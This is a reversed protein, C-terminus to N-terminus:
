RSRRGRRGRLIRTPSWRRRRSSDTWPTTPTLDDYRTTVSRLELLNAWREEGEESGDALMARYGSEGAGRGAARAAAPCRDPDAPRAVLAAFGGLASRARSGLTEIRGEAAANIAGWYTGVERGDTVGESAAEAPEIPAAEPPVPEIPAAEPSGARAAVFARLEALSKDGIGRAPVNLV